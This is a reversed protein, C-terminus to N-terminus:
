DRSAATARGTAAARPPDPFELVAGTLQERDPEPLAAWWRAETEAALVQDLGCLVWLEATTLAPLRVVGSGQACALLREADAVDRQGHISRELLQAQCGPM